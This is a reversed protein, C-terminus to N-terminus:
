GAEFISDTERVKPQVAADISDEDDKITVGKYLFWHEVHELADGPELLTMPGLTEVELMDANTFIEVSCGYDPYNKGEQYEFRKLFLHEGRLYAAWNEKDGVGVKQPETADPDQRLVIYRKGWTWRPDSMDTYAWLVLPWVPLLAEDHSAYPPQPIIARGRKNMMTLAWGAMEVPWLGQNRLRHVVKVYNRDASMTIEMEKQINTSGETPQILALTDGRVEAKIPSNDPWYSRPMGEPAHWLRHGGYIRWESGGTKGVQDPNEGFINDEGVFAFRIVRPGVDTTAILEIQGNTMRYCNQWGNYASKM